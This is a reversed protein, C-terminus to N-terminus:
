IYETLSAIHHFWSSTFSFWENGKNNSVHFAIFSIFHFRLISFPILSRNFQHVGNKLVFMSNSNSTPHHSHSVSHSYLARSEFPSLILCSPFTELSLVSLIQISIYDYFLSIMRVSAVVPQVSVSCERFMQYM